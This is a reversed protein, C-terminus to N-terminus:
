GARAPQSQRHDVLAHIVAQATLANKAALQELRELDPLTANVTALAQIAITIIIVRAGLM